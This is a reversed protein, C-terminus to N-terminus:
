WTRARERLPHDAPLPEEDYVDLAAAFLHGSTLAEALAPYDLLGGRACNVLVSGAPM